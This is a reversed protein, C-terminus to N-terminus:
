SRARLEVLAQDQHALGATVLSRLVVAIPVAGGLAISTRLLALLLEDAVDVPVKVDVLDDAAPGSAAFPLM